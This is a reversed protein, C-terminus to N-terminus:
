IALTKCLNKFMGAVTIEEWLELFWKFIGKTQPLRIVDAYNVSYHSFKTSVPHLCTVFLIHLM